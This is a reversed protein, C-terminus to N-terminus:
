ILVSHLPRVQLAWSEGATKVSWIVQVTKTKTTNYQLQEILHELVPRVFTIGTGGAVLVVHEYLALNGELGGYPGDLLVGITGSMRKSLAHRLKQTLGSAERILLEMERRTHPHPGLRPM